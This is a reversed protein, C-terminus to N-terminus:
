GRLSPAMCSITVGSCEPVKWELCVGDLFLLFRKQVTNQEPFTLMSSHVGKEKSKNAGGVRWGELDKSEACALVGRTSVPLRKTKVSSLDQQGGSSRILRTSTRRVKLLMLWFAGKTGWAQQHYLGSWQSLIINQCVDKSQKSSYLCDLSRQFHEKTVMMAIKNLINRVTLVVKNQTKVTMVWNMTLITDVLVVKWGTDTCAWCWSSSSSLFYFILEVM